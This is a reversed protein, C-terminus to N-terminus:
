VGGEYHDIVIKELNNYMDIQKQWPDDAYVRGLLGEPDEKRDLMQGEYCEQRKTRIHSLIIAKPLKGELMEGFVGVFVRRPQPPPLIRIVADIAYDLMEIDGDRKAWYVSGYRQLTKKLHDLLDLVEQRDAKM